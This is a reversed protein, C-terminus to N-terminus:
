KGFTSVMIGDKGVTFTVAGLKHPQLIIAKHNQLVKITKDSVIGDSANIFTYGPRVENMLLELNSIFSGHHPIQLIDSRIDSSNSLLIAIGKEQIDACLLISRGYYDIKVVCSNDNIATCDADFVPPNLIRVVAPEFGKLVEGCSLAAVGIGKTDLTSRIEKGTNSAFFCRQSFV